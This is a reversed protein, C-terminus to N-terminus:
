ARPGTDIVTRDPGPSESGRPHALGLSVLIYPGCQPPDAGCSNFRDIARAIAHCFRRRRRRGNIPLLYTAARSQDKRHSPRTSRLAISLPTNRPRTRYHAARTHHADIDRVARLGPHELA